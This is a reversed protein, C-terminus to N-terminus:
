GGSSAERPALIVAVPKYRPDRGCVAEWMRRLAAGRARQMHVMHAPEGSEPPPLRLAWLSAFEGPDLAYRMDGIFEDGTADRATYGDAFWSFREVANRTSASMPAAAELTELTVLPTSAGLQVTTAGIFPVRVADSYLRGDAEYVSRWLLLNLPTPMVRGRAIETGRLAALERQVFSARYHQVGGVGMYLLALGFAVASQRRRGVVAGWVLGAMLVLTFAPDIIGILDFSVRAETFPWLLVTGFSTCADLLGHTAYAALAAVFVALRKKRYARWPLFLLTVLAAGIPIFALAHTFHRHHSLGGLPDGAAPFFIDLDAAVGAAFGIVWASRPLQRGCVAQAAVGGLLGQTLPDM